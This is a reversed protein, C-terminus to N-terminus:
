KCTNAAELAAALPSQHATPPALLQFINDRMQECSVFVNKKVREAMKQVSSTTKRLKQKGGAKLSANKKSLKLKSRLTCLKFCKRACNTQPALTASRLRLRLRM